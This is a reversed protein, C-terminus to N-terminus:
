INKLNSTGLAYAIGFYALL